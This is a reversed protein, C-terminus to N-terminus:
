DLESRLLGRAIWFLFRRTKGFEPILLLAISYDAKKGILEDSFVVLLRSRITRPPDLPESEGGGGVLRDCLSENHERQKPVPM